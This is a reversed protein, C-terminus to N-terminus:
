MQPLSQPTVISWDCRPRAKFETYCEPREPHQEYRSWDEINPNDGSLAENSEIPQQRAIRVPPFHLNSTRHALTFLLAWVISTGFIPCDALTAQLHVAPLAFLGSLILKEATSGRPNSMPSASTNSNHPCAAAATPPGIPWTSSQNRRM